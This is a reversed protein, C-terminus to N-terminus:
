DTEPTPTPAPPDPIFIKSTDLGDFLIVVRPVAAAARPTRPVFNDFVDGKTGNRVDNVTVPLGAWEFEGQIGEYDDITRVLGWRGQMYARLLLRKLIGLSGEATVLVPPREMKLEEYRREMVLRCTYYDQWDEWDTMNKLCRGYARWRRFYARAQDAEDITNWPVTDFALHERGSGDGAKVMRPNVPRRKLDYELNAKVERRLRFVDSVSLYQDRVPVFPRNMVKMGFERALVLDVFYRNHDKCDEPPSVSGKAVFVPKVSRDLPTGPVVTGIARLRVSIAQRLQHKTELIKTM